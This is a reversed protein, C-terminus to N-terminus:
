SFACCFSVTHNTKQLQVTRGAEKSTGIWYGSCLKAFGDSYIRPPSTPPLGPSTSVLGSRAAAPPSACFTTSSSSMTGALSWGAAATSEWTPPRNFGGYPRLPTMPSQAPSRCFYVLMMNSCRNEQFQLDLEDTRWQEEGPFRFKEENAAASIETVAPWRIGFATCSICCSVFLLRVQVFCLCQFWFAVAWKWVSM